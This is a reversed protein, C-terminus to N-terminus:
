SANDPRPAFGALIDDVIRRGLNRDLPAGSLLLRYFIPGVLLEHLRRVDTDPRVEGRAVGRQIV